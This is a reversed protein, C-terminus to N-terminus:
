EENAEKNVHKMRATGMRMLQESEIAMSFPNKKAIHLRHFNLAAFGFGTYESLM